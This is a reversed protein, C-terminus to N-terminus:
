TLLSVVIHSSAILLPPFTFIVIRDATDYYFLKIVTQRSFALSDRQRVAGYELDFFQIILADLSYPKRLIM